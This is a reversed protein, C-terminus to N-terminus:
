DADGSMHPNISYSEFMGSTSLMEALEDYKTEKESQPKATSVSEGRMAKIANLEEATLRPRSVTIRKKKMLNM